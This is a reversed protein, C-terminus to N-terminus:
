PAFFQIHAVRGAGVGATLRNRHREDWEECAPYFFACFLPMAALACVPAPVLCAVFSSLLMGCLFCCSLCSLCLLLAVHTSLGVQAWIRLNAPSVAADSQPGV